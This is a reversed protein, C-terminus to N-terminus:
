ASMEMFSLLSLQGPAPPIYKKSKKATPKRAGLKLNKRRGEETEIPLEFQYVKKAPAPLAMRGALVDVTETLTLEVGNIRYTCEDWQATRRVMVGNFGKSYTPMIHELERKLRILTICVPEAPTDEREWADLIRDLKSM